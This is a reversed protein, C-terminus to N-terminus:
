QQRAKEQYEAIYSEDIEEVFFDILQRLSITNDPQDHSELWPTEEHTMNRLKWASYQGYLGYVDDLVQLDIPKFVGFDFGEVFPIPGSGYESFRHYQAPIVPGHTWAEIPDSFLPDNVDQRVAAMVGASYYILKQLKLNSIIDGLEPSSKALMFDAILNTEYTAM